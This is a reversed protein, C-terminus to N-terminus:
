YDQRVVPHKPRISRLLKPDTSKPTTPGFRERQMRVRWLFRRAHSPGNLRLAQQRMTAVLSLRGRDRTMATPLSAPCFDRFAASDGSTAATSARTHVARSQPVPASRVLILHPDVSFSKPAHRRGGSRKSGSGDAAPVNQPDNAGPRSLCRGPLSRLVPDHVCRRAWPQSTTTLVTGGGTAVPRGVPHPQATVAQRRNRRPIAISIM